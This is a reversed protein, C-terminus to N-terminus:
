ELWPKHDAVEVSMRFYLTDDKFYQTNKVPDYGLESYPIFQPYGWNGEVQMNETATVETTMQHHNKDELQNLLTFTIEGIFPWKLETDYKGHLIAAYASVHTGEGLGNGNAIVEMEM